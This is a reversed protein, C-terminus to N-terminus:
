GSAPRPRRLRKVMRVSLEEVREQRGDDLYRWWSNVFEPGVRRFGLRHYLRRARNDARVELFVSECGRRQAEELAFQVLRRGIGRGRLLTAVELAFLHMARRATGVVRLSVTGAPVGELEAVFLERYGMEQERWRNELQARTLEDHTAQALPGIDERSMPRVLLAAAPALSPMAPM